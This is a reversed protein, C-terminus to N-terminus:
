LGLEKYTEEQTCVEGKKVQERAYGIEQSLKVFILRDEKIPNVELVPMSHNMVIYRVNKKKATKWLTTINDRFEKVGIIQTTM